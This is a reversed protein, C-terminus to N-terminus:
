PPHFPYTRIQLSFKNSNRNLVCSARLASHQIFMFHEDFFHEILASRKQPPRTIFHSSTQTGSSEFFRYPHPPHISSHLPVTPLLFPASPSPPFPLILSFPPHFLYSFSPPILFYPASPGIPPFDGAFDIMRAACGHSCRSSPAGPCLAGPIGRSPRSSGRKIYARPLQVRLFQLISFANGVKPQHLGGNKSNKHLRQCYWGWGKKSM